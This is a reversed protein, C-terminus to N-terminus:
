LATDLVFLTKSKNESINGDYHFNNRCKYTNYLYGM